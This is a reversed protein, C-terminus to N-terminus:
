VNTDLLRISLPPVALAKHDGHTELIQPRQVSPRSTGEAGIPQAVSPKCLSTMSRVVELM